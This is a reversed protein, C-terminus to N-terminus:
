LGPARGAMGIEPKDLRLRGARIAMRIDVPSLESCLALSTMRRLVPGAVTLLKFLMRLTPKCKDPRMRDGVAASAMDILQRALEGPRRRLAGSAMTIVVRGRRLGIM